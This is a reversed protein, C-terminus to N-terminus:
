WHFGLPAKTCEKNIKDVGPMTRQVSVGTPSQLIWEYKSRELDRINTGLHAQDSDTLM